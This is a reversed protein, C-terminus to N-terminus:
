GARDVAAEFAAATLHHRAIEVDNVAIVPIDDKYRAHEDPDNDIDRVDLEFPRTKSVHHLVREVMECLHCGPRSYLTVRIM